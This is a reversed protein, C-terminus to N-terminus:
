QNQLLRFGLDNISDGGIRAWAFWGRQGSPRNSTTHLLHPVLEVTMGVRQAVLYNRFDGVVLINSAGTTGTFEPFYANEYVPRGKLQDVAGATLNVTQARLKDDGFSQVENNVDVNMLWSASSRYREPLNKWVKNIDEYGFSGDTTPTVEVNTNADLATIIGVPENSGSGAGTALKEALLEDYGELLLRSMEEAFGPYDGGIEISYPIFGRATEAPVSPQALTAADDSVEAAEADFSWSVGASSVGKWQDNTITEVRSIRMIANNSGQSTLIISPDIFVPVGFGGATTTSSAARFESFEQLARGEEATLTPVPQTVAKQFASRYEPKETVLLMRAVESPDYSRTRGARLLGEVRVKQDDDLHRTLEDRDLAALARDRAETPRLYRVDDGTFPEVRNIVTPGDGRVTVATGNEVKSRLEAGDLAAHLNERQEQRGEIQELKERLDVSESTLTDFREITEEDATEVDIQDIEDRIESLRSLISERNM